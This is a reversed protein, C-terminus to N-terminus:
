TKCIKNESINRWVDDLDVQKVSAPDSGGQLKWGLKCCASFSAMALPLTSAITGHLWPDKTSSQAQLTHWFDIYVELFWTFTGCFEHECCEEAAWFRTVVRRFPNQRM